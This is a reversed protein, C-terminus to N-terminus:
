RVWITKVNVFQRLGFASLERGYGSQKIGGFPLSPDSRVFDNVFVLGAEIREIALTEAHRQRRSFLAAGLGYPSLNALAIAETEDRASIIPAVPGFLEEDFAAMGPRVDGLVTPPYHCGRAVPVLGGLLLKAGQKVSRLVQHHLEERLDARALPGLTCAPDTPDGPKQAAMCALFRRTFAERVSEIVIFRKACVCSQGSNQLRAEACVSAALDLDADALIVYPDSGGLELVCPKLAGGALAAVQRGAATSGTLSVAHIRDDAILRPIGKSSVLLTRLLGRPVGADRFVQEIALACGTVNSAHKLVVTNGAMLAPVVARFAQWFPFNWPLILLLTGLPEFVVRAHKPAGVPCEPQLFRRANKAFFDCCVACKEIEARAQTIPKGMEATILQALSEHAVRLSRGVATLHRARDAFSLERWGAFGAQVETLSADIQTLTHQRYARIKRGTAPNVSLLPM